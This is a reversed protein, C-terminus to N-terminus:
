FRRKKNVFSFTRGAISWAGGGVAVAATYQNWGMDWTDGEADRDRGDVDFNVGATTGLDSGAGIADSGAKLHLDESGAVTSIFQDAVTVSAVNGTSAPLTGDSDMCYTKSFTGSWDVGTAGTHGVSICNVAARTYGGSSSSSVGSECGYVTCNWITRTGATGWKQLHIGPDDFVGWVGCNVVHVDGYLRMGYSGAYDSRTSLPDRVICSAIVVAGTSRTDFVSSRYGFNYIDVWEINTPVTTHITFVGNYGFSSGDVRAGSGPTGDHRASSHARLTITNPNTDYMSIYAAPTYVEDYLEGICDDGAFSSLDAEWAAMTSYDGGSAKISKTITAM